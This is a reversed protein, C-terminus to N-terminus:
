ASPEPQPESLERIAVDFEDRMTILFLLQADREMVETATIIQSVAGTIADMAANLDRIRAEVSAALEPANTM